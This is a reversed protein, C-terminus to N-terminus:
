RKPIADASYISNLLFLEDISCHQQKRLAKAQAWKHEIPNLDPSYPPLYELVHGAALIAQQIDHRKHFTANDMVIVANEPLKPLLDQTVWAFFVHSNIAGTFLSITLLDFDLLAGIVNTRGKAHWDHSGFCRKGVSAYGFRRPMDHAFGSEDM